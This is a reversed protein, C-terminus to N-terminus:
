NETSGTSVFTLSFLPGKELIYRASPNVNFILYELTKWSQERTQGMYKLATGLIVDEKGNGCIHETYYSHTHYSHVGIYGIRWTTVHGVVMLQVTDCGNM